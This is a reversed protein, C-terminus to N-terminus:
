VDEGELKALAEAVNEAVEEKLEDVTKKPARGRKTTEVPESESMVPEPPPETSYGMNLAHRIIDQNYTEFPGDEFDHVIRSTGPYRLAGTGYFKM